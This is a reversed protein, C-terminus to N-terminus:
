WMEHIGKALLKRARRLHLCTAMTWGPVAGFRDLHWRYEKALWASAEDDPDEPAVKVLVGHIAVDGLRGDRNCLWQWLMAYATVQIIHEHYPARHKTSTKWDYVAVVGNERAVLDPTGAFGLMPSVIPQEQALVELQRQERWKCWAEFARDAHLSTEPQQEDDSMSWEILGHLMTGRRAAADRELRPSKGERALKDAWFFLADKNWGLEGLLTTVSPLEEGDETLYRDPRSM